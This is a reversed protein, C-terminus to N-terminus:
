HCLNRSHDLEVHHFQGIIKQLKIDNTMQNIEGKSIVM